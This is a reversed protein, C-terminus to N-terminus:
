RGRPPRLPSCHKWCPQRRRRREAPEIAGCGEALERTGQSACREGTCTSRPGRLSRPPTERFKTGRRSRRRAAPWSRRLRRWAHPTRRAAGAPEKLAESVEALRARLADVALDLENVRWSLVSRM